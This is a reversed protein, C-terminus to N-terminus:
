ATRWRKLTSTAVGFENGVEVGQLRLMMAILAFHHVTHSLLFQMERLVTSHSWLNADVSVDELRVMIKSAEDIQLATLQEILGDIKAIAVSRNREILEDRERTDYDIRRNEVGNLFATFFDLCHRVHSGIGYNFVPPMTCWYIEDDIRKLLQNAQTLLVIAEETLPNHSFNDSM